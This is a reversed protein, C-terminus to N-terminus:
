TRRTIVQLVTGAVVDGNPSVSPMARASESARILRVESVESVRITSLVGADTPANNDIMVRVSEGRSILLPAARELAQLLTNSPAYRELDKTTLLVTGAPQVRDWDSQRTTTACGGISMAVVVAVSMYWPIRM